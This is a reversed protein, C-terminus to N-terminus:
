GFSGAVAGFEPRAAHQPALRGIAVVGRDILTEALDSLLGDLVGSREGLLAHLRDIILGRGCGDVEHPPLLGRALREEAPEVRGAHVQPGMDAALVASTVCVAVALIDVAHELVVIGDAGQELREVVHGSPAM